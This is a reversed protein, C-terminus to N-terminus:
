KKRKKYRSKKALQQTKYPLYGKALLGCWVLLLLSWAFQGPMIALWFIIILGTQLLLAWALVRSVEQGREKQAIPYVRYMINQDYKQGLPLLQWVTLYMVLGSLLLSWVPDQIMATLLVAFATMRALLNLYEPDRLLTRRYLFSNPSEKGFPPLLFDLYKRRKINVQREKVDTFLAFGAYVTEKRRAEYDIAYQWDFASNKWARLALIAIVALALLLYLANPLFYLSALLLALLVLRILWTVQKVKHDFTLSRSVAGQEFVKAFFLALVLSFYNLNSLGMKLSAFPYMIGGALALLLAPLVLSYRRMPALYDDLRDDTVLLFQRDATQLLTVLKGPLYALWLLASLVLPYYWAKVPLVKMVQAYWFMVAGFIFILALVFFDNFVLALYKASQQFNGQLRKKALERM